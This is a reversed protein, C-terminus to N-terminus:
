FVCPRTMGCGITGLQRERDRAPRASSSIVNFSGDNTSPNASQFSQEDEVLAM